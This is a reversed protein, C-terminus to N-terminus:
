GRLPKNRAIRPASAHPDFAKLPAKLPAAPAAAVAVPPTGEQNPARADPLALSGRAIAGQIENWSAIAQHAGLPGALAPGARMGCKVCVAQYGFPRPAEAAAGRAIKDAPEILECPGKCHHCDSLAPTYIM